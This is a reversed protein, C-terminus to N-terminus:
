EVTLTYPGAESFVTGDHWIVRITITHSGKTVARLPLTCRFGTFRYRADRFYRVVDPRELGYQAAVPFGDFAIDVSRALAHHSEGTAWGTVHVYGSMVHIGDRGPDGMGGVGDLNARAPFNSMTLNESPGTPRFPVGPQAAGVDFELPKNGNLSCVSVGDALIVYVNAQQPLLDAQAYALFGTATTNVVSVAAKVDPRIFGTRGVGIIRDNASTIVVGRPEALGERDFAWGWLRFGGWRYHAIPRIADIFGICREPKSVRYLGRLDSGVDLNGPAAYFALHSSRLYQSWLMADTARYPPMIVPNIASADLVGSTLALEAEQIVQGRSAADRALKPITPIVGSFTMTAAIQIVLLAARRRAMSTKWIWYVFLLCWFHLATTQYRGAYAKEVGLGVRGLATTVATALLYALMAGLFVAFVQREKRLLLWLVIAAAGLIALV